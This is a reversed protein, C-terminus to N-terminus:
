VNRGRRKVAGPDYEAAKKLAAQMGDVRAQLDDNKYDAAVKIYHRQGALIRNLKRVEAALQELDM